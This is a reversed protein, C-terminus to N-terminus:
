GLLLRDKGRFGEAAVCAMEKMSARGDGLPHSFPAEKKTKGGLSQVVTLVGEGYLQNVDCNGAPQV